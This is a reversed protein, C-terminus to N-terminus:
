SNLLDHIEVPIWRLLNEKAREERQRIREKTVGEKKAIAELTHSELGALGFRMQLLEREDDSIKLLATELLQKLDNIRHAEDNQFVSKDAIDNLNTENDNKSHQESIISKSGITTEKNKKRMIDLLAFGISGNAYTEFLIPKGTKNSLKNPDFKAASRIIKERLESNIEEEDIGLSRCANVRSRHLALGVAVQSPYKELYREVM